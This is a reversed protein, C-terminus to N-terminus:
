FQKGLAAVMSAGVIGGGCVVIDYYKTLKENNQNETLVKNTIVTYCRLQKTLVKENSFRLALKIALM